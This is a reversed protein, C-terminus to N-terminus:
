CRKPINLFGPSFGSNEQGKWNYNAYRVALLQAAKPEIKLEKWIRVQSPRFSVISDGIVGYSYLHKGNYYIESSGLQGILLALSKNWLSTDAIFHFRFWGINNWKLTSDTKWNITPDAEVWDSDNFREKSWNLDDGPHYKWFNDLVLTARNPHFRKADFVLKKDIFTNKWDYVTTSIDTDREVKLNLNNYVFENRDLAELWWNGGTFKFEVKTGMKFQFTRSFLTDSFRKLKVKDPNWSGLEPQNGTIFVEQGRVPNKVFVQFTIKHFSTDNSCGIIGSLM